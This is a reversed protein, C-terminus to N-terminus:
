KVGLFVSVFELADLGLRAAHVAGTVQLWKLPLM